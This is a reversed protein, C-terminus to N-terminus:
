PRDPEKDTADPVLGETRLCHAIADAAVANGEDNWHGSVRLYVQRGQRAAERLPGVLECTHMQQEALFQRVVAYPRDVDVSQLHKPAYPRVVDWYVQEKPPILVVMLEADMDAVTTRLERLAQQMLHWGPLPEIGKLTMVWWKDLRFVFDLNADRHNYIDRHQVRGLGEVVQYAISNRALWDTVRGRRNQRMWTFQDETGSRTWQDFHVNDTFDNPFISFIVLRPHLRRGYRDLMRVEAQSSYGNVGMTAMSVGTAGALRRVWCAEAPSDDCFTFSDGIAVAYFPPQMGLDRFGISGLGLPTTRIAVQRGDSPFLIDLDPKLKYGLYADGLMMDQWATRANYVRALTRFARPMMGPLLRPVLEVAALGVVLGFGLLAATARMGGSPSPASATGAPLTVDAPAHHEEAGPSIM